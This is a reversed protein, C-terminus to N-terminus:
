QVQAPGDPTKLVIHQRKTDSNNTIKHMAHSTPHSSLFAVFITVLSLVADETGL